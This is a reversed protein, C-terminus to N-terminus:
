KGDIERKKVRKRHRDVARKVEQPKKGLERALDAYKKYVSSRCADFIRMDEREDTDSPRGRKKQSRSVPKGEEEPASKAAEQAERKMAVDSSQLQRLEEHAERKIELYEASRLLGVQGFLAKPANLFFMLAQHANSAVYPNMGRADHPVRFLRRTSLPRLFPEIAVYALTLPVSEEDRYDPHWGVHGCQRVHSEARDVETWFAEFAEVFQSGSVDNGESLAGMRNNGIM